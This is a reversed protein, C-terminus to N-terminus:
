HNLNDIITQIQKNYNVIQDNYKESGEDVRKYILEYCKIRLKCYRKLM